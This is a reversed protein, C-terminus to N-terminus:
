QNNKLAQLENYMELLQQEKDAILEEVTPENTEIMQVEIEFSGDPKMTYIEKREM